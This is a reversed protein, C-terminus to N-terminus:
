HKVGLQNYKNNMLQLVQSETLKSTDFTEITPQTSSLYMVLSNYITDASEFIIGIPVNIRIRTPHKGSVGDLNCQGTLTTTVTTPDLMIQMDLLLGTDHLYLGNIAIDEVECGALKCMAVLVTDHIELLIQKTQISYITERSNFMAQLEQIKNLEM